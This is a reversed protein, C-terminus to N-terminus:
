GVRITPMPVFAALGFSLQALNVVSQIGFFAFRLRLSGLLLYRTLHDYRIKIQLPSSHFFPLTIFYFLSLIVSTYQINLLRCKSAFLDKSRTKRCKPLLNCWCYKRRYYHIYTRKFCLCTCDLLEKWIVAGTLVKCRCLVTPFLAEYHRM